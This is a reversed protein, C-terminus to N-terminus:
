TATESYTWTLSTSAFPAVIVFLLEFTVNVRVGPDPSTVFLESETVARGNILPTAVNAGAAFSTGVIEIPVGFSAAGCRLAVVQPSGTM